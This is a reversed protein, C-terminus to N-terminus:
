VTQHSLAYKVLETRHNKYELILEIIQKMEGNSVEEDSEQKAIAQFIEAIQSDSQFLIDRHNDIAIFTDVADASLKLPVDPSLMGLTALRETAGVVWMVQMEPITLQKQM